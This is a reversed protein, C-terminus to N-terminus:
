KSNNAGVKENVLKQLRSIEKLFLENQQDIRFNLTTIENRLDKIDEDKKKLSKKVRCAFKLSLGVAFMCALTPLLKCSRSKSCGMFFLCGVILLVAGIVRLAKKKEEVTLKGQYARCVFDSVKLQCCDYCSKMSEPNSM